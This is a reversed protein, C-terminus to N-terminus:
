EDSEDALSQNMAENYDEDSIDDMAGGTDEAPAEVVTTEGSGGGWGLIPCIAISLVTMLSFINKKM